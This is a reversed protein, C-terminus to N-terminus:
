ILRRVAEFLALATGSFAVLIVLCGTRPTRARAPARRRRRKPPRISSQAMVAGAHKPMQGTLVQDLDEILQLCDSYREEPKKAMMRTIVMVAGDTIEPVVDQPNELEEKLHKLMIEANTSGEFPVRGTLLLYLSAGLSYIDCRHDVDKQGRAQEPSIYHPTGLAIGTKTLRQDDELSKALGLDVLKVSGDNGLLVNDPKIDRHIFNHSHAHALGAAVGRTIALAEKEQLRGKRRLRARLSEGDIFEMSLYPRGDHSGAAYAAAINPHNLAGGAKAERQFRKVFETDDSIAKSLVKLAVIRKTMDRAKYVAGMGGEGIRDLLEFDGFTKKTVMSDVPGTATGKKERRRKQELLVKQVRRHDLIRMEILIEGIAKRQNKTQLVAQRKLAESLDSHQILKMEMAIEGFRDGKTPQAM